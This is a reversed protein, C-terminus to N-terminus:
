WLKMPLRAKRPSSVLVWCSSCSSNASIGAHTVLYSASRRSGGACTSLLKVIQPGIARTRALECGIGWRRIPWGARASIIPWSRPSHRLLRQFTVKLHSALRRLSNIMALPRDQLVRRGIAVACPPHISGCHILSDLQMTRFETLQKGGESAGRPRERTWAASYIPTPTVFNSSITPSPRIGRGFRMSPRFTHSRILSSSANAASSSAAPGLFSHSSRHHLDPQAVLTTDTKITVDGLIDVAVAIHSNIELALLALWLDTKGFDGASICKVCFILTGKAAFDLRWVLVSGRLRFRQPPETLFVICRGLELRQRRTGALIAAPVEFLNTLAGAIETILQHLRPM